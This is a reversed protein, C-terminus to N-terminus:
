TLLARHADAFAAFAATFGDLQAQSLPLSLAIFGRRAVYYGHEILHFFLLDRVRPDARQLDGAHRLPARGPHLNLLSGLGTCQMDLGHTRCIANLRERLADGRANLALAAEATYVSGLGAAGAM